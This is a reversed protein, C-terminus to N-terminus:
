IVEPPTVGYLREAATGGESELVRCRQDLAVRNESSWEERMKRRRMEEILTDVAKSLNVGHSKIFDANDNAISINVNRRTSSTAMEAEM